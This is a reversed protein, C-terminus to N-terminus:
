NDQIKLYATCIQEFQQWSLQEPRLDNFPMDDLHDVFMSKLSNRLKKRRNGFSMKVVAKLLSYDISPIDKKRKLLIISSNVKPPPDFSEPPVDFLYTTDYYTQTLVSPIGYKKSGSPSCIREAVEKQFMGILMEVHHYHDIMKFIIQSSINYPFNGIISFSDDFVTEWNLKLVDEHLINSSDIKLHQSLYAYWRDDLEVLKYDLNLHQLHNSLAGNGPGIELVHRNTNYKVFAELIQDIIAKDNLFHQGLSKKLKM